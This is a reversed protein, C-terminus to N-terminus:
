SREFMNIQDKEFHKQKLEIVEQYHSDVITWTQTKPDYERHKAPVIEKLEDIFGMWYKSKYDTEHTLRLTFFGSHGLREILM